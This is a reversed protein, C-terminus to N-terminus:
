YSSAGWLDLLTNTVNLTDVDTIADTGQFILQKNSILHSILLFKNTHTHPCGKEKVAAVSL